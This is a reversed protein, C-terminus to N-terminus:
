KGAKSRASLVAQRFAELTMQGPPLTAPASAAPTPSADTTPSAPPTSSAPTAPAAPSPQQPAAASPTTPNPATPAPAAGSPNRPTGTSSAGTPPSSPTGTNGASPTPAAVAVGPTGAPLGLVVKSGGAGGQVNYAGQNFGVLPSDYRATYLLLMAEGGPLLPGDQMGSLIWVSPKNQYKPLAQADGALTELVTLPYVNWTQGSEQVSAPAEVTARVIVQARVAQQDLTLRPASTASALPLLGLAASTWLARRM